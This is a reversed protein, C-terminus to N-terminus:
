EVQKKGRRTNTKSGQTHGAKSKISRHKVVPAPVAHHSSDNNFLPINYQSRRTMNSPDNPTNNEYLFTGLASSAQDLGLVQDFSMYNAKEARPTSVPVYTSQRTNGSENPLYSIYAPKPDENFHIWEGLNINDQRWSMNYIYDLSDVVNRPESLNSYFTFILHNLCINFFLRIRLPNTLANINNNYAPRWGNLNTLYIPPHNPFTGL